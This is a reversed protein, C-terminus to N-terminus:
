LRILGTVTRLEPIGDMYNARPLFEVRFARQGAIASGLRLRTRTVGRHVALVEQLLLEALPRLAEESVGVAVLAPLPNPLELGIAWQDPSEEGLLSVRIATETLDDWDRGGVSFTTPTPLQEVRAVITFERSRAARTTTQVKTVEADLSRGAYTLTTRRRSFPDRLDHLAQGVDPSKVVARIKTEGGAEVIERARFIMNGLKVWPSLDEAAIDQLRSILSAQLDEPTTFGGTVNFRRVEDLFAQQHGERDVGDQAWVSLRLGRREAERYEEHTASFRSPLPRGYKEGLLGVYIDCSRVENLYAANPDGDRGGFREFLVPQAGLEEVTEAVAVRFEEYGVIVSSVFVRQEAAWEAVAADSPREAAAAHDIM